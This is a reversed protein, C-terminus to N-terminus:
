QPQAPKAEEDEIANRKAQELDAEWKKAFAAAGGKDKGM